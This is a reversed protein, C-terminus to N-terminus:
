DIGMRDRLREVTRLGVGPLSALDRDSEHLAALPRLTHLEGTRLLGEVTYALSKGIGPVRELGARGEEAFVEAIPRSLMLLQGAATRFARARFLNGGEKEVELAYDRLRRAMAENTM